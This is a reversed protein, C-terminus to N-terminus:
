IREQYNSKKNHLFMIKKIEHYLEDSTRFLKKDLEHVDLKIAIFKLANKEPVLVGVPTGAYEIVQKKM